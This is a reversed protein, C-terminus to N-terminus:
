GIIRRATVFRSSYYSSTIKVVKVVDGPKPSHIMEDNGIYLGVHSIGSGNTNFFVLDGPKLNSRSVSYGATAQDRSTRPLTVGAGKKYVYSTLGSCDFSNPGEAGWVYPCGIKSKAIRVVEAVKESATNTSSTNNNNNNQSSSSLSGQRYNSLYKHNVYGTIGSKLQIKSWGNSYVELVKVDTGKTAKSIVSYNVGYGSRLNLSDATVTAIKGINSSQISQVAENKNQTTSANGKIEELYEGYVYGTKNSVKIKYWNNNTKSVIDVVDGDKLKGIVSSSTSAGSRINLRTSGVNVVRGKKSASSSESVTNSASSVSSQSIKIYESSSYGKVGNYEVKYWGNVEEIVKVKKGGPIKGVVKYKTGHSARINLNTTSKLQVVGTKEVVARNKQQISSNDINNAFSVGDTLAPSMATVIGATLLIKKM